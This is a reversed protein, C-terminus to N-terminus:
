LPTEYPPAARCFSWLWKFYVRTAATGKQLQIEHYRKFRSCFFPLVRSQRLGLLV